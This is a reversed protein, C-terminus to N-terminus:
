LLANEFPPPPGRIAMKPAFRSPFVASESEYFFHFLFLSLPFYFHLTSFSFCCTALFSLVDPRSAPTTGLLPRPLSALSAWRDIPRRRALAGTVVVPGRRRHSCCMRRAAHHTPALAVADWLGSQEPVCAPGAPSIAYKAHGIGPHRQAEAQNSISVQMARGGLSRQDWICDALLTLRSTRKSSAFGQKGGRGGEAGHWAMGHGAM